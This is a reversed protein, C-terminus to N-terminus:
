RGGQRRAEIAAQLREPEPSGLTVVHGDHTTVRLAAGGVTVSFLRDKGLGRIGAGRLASVRVCQLSGIDALAIQWRPWGLYGFAWVLRDARLEVVLRGFCALGVGCVVWASALATWLAPDRRSAMAASVVLAPLPLLWWMVTFPQSRRYPAADMPQVMVDFHRPGWM